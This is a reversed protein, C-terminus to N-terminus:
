SKNQNSSCMLIKHCSWQQYCFSSDETVTALGMTLYSRGGKGDAAWFDVGSVLLGIDWHNPDSDSDPNKGSQYDCFSTLMPARDGGHNDFQRTKQIEMHVISFDVKTGLSEFNYIAQISNMFALVLHVIRQDVNSYGVQTFYEKYLNYAEPDMFLGTEVFLKSSGARKTRLKKMQPKTKSLTSITEHHNETMAPLSARKVIVTKTEEVPKPHFEKQFERIMDQIRKPVSYIEYTENKENDFVIGSLDM